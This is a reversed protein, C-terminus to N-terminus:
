ASQRRAEAIFLRRRLQELVAAVWRAHGLEADTWTLYRAVSCWGERCFSLATEFCAPPKHNGPDQGVFVTTVRACNCTLLGLPEDRRVFADEHRLREWLTAGAGLPTDAVVCKAPPVMCAGVPAGFFGEFAERSAPVVRRRDDLIFFQSAVPLTM